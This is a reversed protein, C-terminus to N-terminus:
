MRRFFFLFIVILVFLEVIILKKKRIKIYCWLKQNNTVKNRRIPPKKNFEAASKDKSGSSTRSLLSNQKVQTQIKKLVEGPEAKSSEVKAESEENGKIKKSGLEGDSNSKVHFNEYIPVDKRSSDFVNAYIPTFISPDCIEEKAESSVDCFDKAKHTLPAAIEPCGQEIENSKLLRSSIKEIESPKALRSSTKEVENLKTLRPSIKEVENSKALRSSIKDVENSKTLHSSIKELENSKPSRSSIKEMENSKVLRPSIMEGDDIIDDPNLSSITSPRKISRNILKPSHDFDIRAMVPRHIAVPKILIQNEGSIIEESRETELSRPKINLKEAKHDDKRTILDLASIIKPAELSVEDVNSLKSTDDLFM